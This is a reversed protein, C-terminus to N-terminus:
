IKRKRSRRAVGIWVVVGVWVAISSPEPVAGGSIPLPNGSPDLFFTLNPDTTMRVTFSDGAALQPDGAWLHELELRALLVPSTLPVGFFTVDFDGVDLTDQLAAPSVAQTLGGSVGSFVYVPDDSYDTQLDVFRLTSTVAFAPEILFQAQYAQLVDAGSTSSVMVDVTASGAVPIDVPVTIIDPTVTVILAAQGVHVPAVALLSAILVSRINM